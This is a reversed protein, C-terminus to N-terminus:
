SKSEFEVIAAAQVTNERYEVDRAPIKKMMHTLYSPSSETIIVLFGILLVICETATQTRTRM